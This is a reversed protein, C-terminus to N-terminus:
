VCKKGEKLLAQKRKKIEAKYKWEERQLAECIRGGCSDERALNDKMWQEDPFQECYRCQGVQMVFDKKYNAWDIRNMKVGPVVVGCLEDDCQEREIVDDDFNMSMIHIAGWIMMCVLLLIMM